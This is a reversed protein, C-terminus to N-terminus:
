YQLLTISNRSESTDFFPWLEDFNLWHDGLELMAQMLCHKVKQLIQIFNIGEKKPEDYIVISLPM